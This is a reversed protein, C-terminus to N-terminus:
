YRAVQGGRSVITTVLSALLGLNPVEDVRVSLKVQQGMKEVMLNRDKLTISGVKAWPIIDKGNGIGRQDVTVRGLIIMQGANYAALAGPLLVRAVEDEITVGLDEIHKLITPLKFSQGDNRQMTFQHSTSYRSKIIKHWVVQIQDWRLPELRGGKGYILGYNFVYARTNTHPISICCWIIAAIPVAILLYWIYGVLLIAVFVIIDLIIVGLTIGLIALPSTFRPKYVQRPEGLQYAAAQQYVEQPISDPQIAQIYPNAM